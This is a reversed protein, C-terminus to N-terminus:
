SPLIRGLRVGLSRLAATLRHRVDWLFREWRLSRRFREREERRKRKRDTREKVRDTPLRAPVGIQDEARAIAENLVSGLPDALDIWASALVAARGTELWGSTKYGARLWSLIEDRNERCGKPGWLDMQYAKKSCDCGRRAQIKLDFLIRRLHTGPGAGAAVRCGALIRGPEHYTFGTVNPCGRRKCRYRRRFTGRVLRPSEDPVPEWDCNM